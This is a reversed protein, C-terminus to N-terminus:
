NELKFAKDSHTAREQEPPPTMYDGYVMRLYSDYDRFSLFERGEFRIPVLDDFRTKEIVTRYNMAGLSHAVLPSDHYRDPHSLEECKEWWEDLSRRYSKLISLLDKKQRHHLRNNISMYKHMVKRQKRSDAPVSDLPFIDVWVGHTADSWSNKIRTTNDCIKAFGTVIFKKESCPNYLVEYKRGKYTKVFRDFDERLMFMDADDDWPIFGGHRVAGLLTGSSISYRIGNARCFEDIDTMIDLIIAQREKITLEKM